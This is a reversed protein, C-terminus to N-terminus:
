KGEAADAATPPAPPPPLPMWHTPNGSWSQCIIESSNSDAFDQCVQGYPSRTLVFTGDRPATEIPRWQLAAEAREARERWVALTDLASTVRDETAQQQLEANVLKRRLADIKTLLAARQCARDYGGHISAEDPCETDDTM